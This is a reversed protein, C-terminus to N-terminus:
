QESQALLTAACLKSLESALQRSGRTECEGGITKYTNAQESEPGKM